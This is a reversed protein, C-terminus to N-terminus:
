PTHHISQQYFLCIEMCMCKYNYVSVNDIEGAAVWYDMAMDGIGERGRGM